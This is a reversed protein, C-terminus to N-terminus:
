CCPLSCRGNPPNMKKYEKPNDIMKKIGKKLMPIARSCKKNHLADSFSKINMAKAYMNNVNYTHNGVEIEDIKISVKFPFDLSYFKKTLDIDWSM